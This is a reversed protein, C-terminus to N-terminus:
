TPPSTAALTATSVSSCDNSRTGVTSPSRSAKESALVATQCSLWALVSRRPM